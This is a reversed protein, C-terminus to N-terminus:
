FVKVSLIHCEDKLYILLGYIFYSVGFMELLEEITYIYGWILDNNSYNSVYWGGLMELGIAGSVFIVGSSFFHYCTTRPLKKLFNFLIVFLVILAVFFPIIWAFYFIGDLDYREKMPLIFSEHGQFGEDYALFLFVAAM